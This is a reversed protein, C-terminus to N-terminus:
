RPKGPLEVWKGGGKPKYKWGYDDGPYKPCMDGEPWHPIPNGIPGTV